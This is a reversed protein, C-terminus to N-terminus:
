GQKSLWWLSPDFASVNPGIGKTPAPSNIAIYNLEGDVAYRYPDSLQHSWKSYERGVIQGSREDNINQPQATYEHAMGLIMGNALIVHSHGVVASLTKSTAAERVQAKAAALVLKRMSELETILQASLDALLASMPHHAGTSTGLERLTNLAARAKEILPADPKQEWQRRVLLAPLYEGECSPESQGVSRFISLSRNFLLEAEDYNGKIYEMRGKQRQIYADIVDKPEGEEYWAFELEEKCEELLAARDTDNVRGQEIEDLRAVANVYHESTPHTPSPAKPYFEQVQKALVLRLEPDSTIRYICPPAGRQGVPGNLREATLFGDERMRRIESQVSDSNFGTAKIMQEATFEKLTLAVERVRLKVRGMQQKQNM